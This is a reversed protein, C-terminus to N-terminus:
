KPYYHHEKLRKVLINEIERTIDEWNYKQAVEKRKRQLKSSDECLAKYIQESFDNHNTATYILGQCIRVAEELKLSVVPKGLASYEFLKLPSISHTLDQIAFPILCVDFQQIYAPIEQYKKKGLFYCNKFSQLNDLRPTKTTVPGVFVFSYNKNERVVNYLLEYDLWPALSGVFGIIPHKVGEIDRPMERRKEFFDLSVGNPAWYVNSNLRACRQYLRNSTAFVVNAEKLIRREKDLIWKKSSQSSFFGESEDACDYVLFKYKISSVAFYFFPSFSWVVDVEKMDLIKLVKNLLYSTILYDIKELLKIKHHLPFYLPRVLIIENRKEIRRIFLHPKKVAQLVITPEIYIIKHGRKALRSMIQQHRQWLGDWPVSSFCAITM